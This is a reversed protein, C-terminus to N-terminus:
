PKGISYGKSILANLIRELCRAGVRLGGLPQQTINMGLPVDM